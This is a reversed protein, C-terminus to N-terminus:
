TRLVASRLVAVRPARATPAPVRPQSQWAPLRTAPGPVMAAVAGSGSDLRQHQSAVPSTLRLPVDRCDGCHGSGSEAVLHASAALDSVFGGCLGDQTSIEMAVQGDQEVCLVLGSALSPVIAALQAILGISVLISTRLQRM